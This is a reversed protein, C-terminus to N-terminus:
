GLSRIKPTHHGKRKRFKGRFLHSERGESQDIARGRAAAKGKSAWPNGRHGRGNNEGMGEGGGKKIRLVGRSNRLGGGAVWPRRERCLIRKFEKGGDFNGKKM